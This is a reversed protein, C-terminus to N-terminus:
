LLTYAKSEILIYLGLAILIFPTLPGAYRRIPAGLRPHRVLSYGILCWVATLLLFVLAFLALEGPSRQAFVPVYVGINDGGNALTVLAVSAIRAAGRGPPLAQKEEEEENRRLRILKMIGIMLPAIGLLGVYAPAVVLALLSGGMSLAILVIIGAFQGTVVQSPRFEPDAFFSLLVFIDDINTSIFLVLALGLIPLLQEM